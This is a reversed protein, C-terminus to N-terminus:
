KGEKLKNVDECLTEIMMRLVKNQEENSEMEAKMLDVLRDHNNAVSSLEDGFCKFVRMMNIYTGSCAVSVIFSIYAAMNNEKFLEAFENYKQDRFSEAEHARENVVSKDVLEAHELAFESAPLISAIAKMADVSSFVKNTTM